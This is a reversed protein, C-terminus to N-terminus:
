ELVTNEDLSFRSFSHIRLTDKGCNLFVIQPQLSFARDQILRLFLGHEHIEERCFLTGFHPLSRGCIKVTHEKGGFVSPSARFAPDKPADRNRCKGRGDAKSLGPSKLSRPM